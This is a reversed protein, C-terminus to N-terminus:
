VFFPRVSTSQWKKNASLAIVSRGQDCSGAITLDKPGPALRTEDGQNVRKPRGEGKWVIESMHYFTVYGLLHM